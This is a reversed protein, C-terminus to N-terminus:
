RRSPPRPHTRDRVPDTARGQGEGIEGGLRRKPGLRGPEVLQLEGGELLPDLGLEREPFQSLHDTLEFAERSTM